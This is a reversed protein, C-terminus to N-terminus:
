NAKITSIVIVAIAVIVYVGVLSELQILKTVESTALGHNYKDDVKLAIFLLILPIAYYISSLKLQSKATANLKM